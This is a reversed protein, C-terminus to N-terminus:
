ITKLYIPNHCDNSYCATGTRALSGDYLSYGLSQWRMTCSNHGEIRIIVIRGVHGSLLTLSNVEVMGISEVPLQQRLMNLFQLITLSDLLRGIGIDLTVTLLFGDMHLGLRHNDNLTDHRQMIFLQAVHHVQLYKNIGVAIHTQDSIDTTIHHLTSSRDVHHQIAILLHEFGHM